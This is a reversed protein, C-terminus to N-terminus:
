HGGGGGFPHFGAILYLLPFLFIWVIDILHWYLGMIEVPQDNGREFTGKAALVAFWGVLGLGIVMHIAHLGTMAFYIVWYMMVSAQSVGTKALEDPHADYYFWSVGPVLGIQYDHGWEFYKVVLFTLGLIWTAALWGVIAKRKGEAASHVAMAVTLSSFLLVFTNFTGYNVNQHLSGVHFAAPYLWRYLAYAFFLGGFMMLETALFLWMGLSNAERQQEMTDFHHHLAPNDGHGHGHAAVAHADTAM